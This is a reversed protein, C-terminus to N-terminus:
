RESVEARDFEWDATETVNVGNNPDDQHARMYEETALKVSGLLVIGRKNHGDIDTVTIEEDDPVDVVIYGQREQWVNVKWRSM